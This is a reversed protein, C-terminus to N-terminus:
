EDGDKELGSSRSVSAMLDMRRRNVVPDSPQAGGSAYKNSSPAARGRPTTGVGRRGRGRARWSGEAHPRETNNRRDSMTTYSLSCGSTFATVSVPGSARPVVIEKNRIGEKSIVMVM